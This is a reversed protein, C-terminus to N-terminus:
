SLTELETRQDFRVLKITKGSARAIDQAVPRLSALRAPDAALLPMWWGNCVFAPVGEEGQADVAIFAHISTITFPM